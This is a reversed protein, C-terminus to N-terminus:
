SNNAEFKAIQELLSKQLREFEAAEKEDLQKKVKDYRNELEAYAQQHHNTLQALQAAHAQIIDDLLKKPTLLRRLPTDWTHYYGLGEFILYTIIGAVLRKHKKVEKYWTRTKKRTVQYSRKTQEGIADSSREGFVARTGTYWCIISVLFVISLNKSIRINM